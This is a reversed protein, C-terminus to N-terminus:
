GNFRFKWIERAVRQDPRRYVIFPSSFIKAPLLPEPEFGFKKIENVLKDSIVVPMGKTIFQPVIFVIKANPKLIKKFESFADIYLSLLENAQKKLEEDKESGRLPKGLYPETTILDISKPKLTKGLNKVDAVTIEIISDSTDPLKGKQWQLNNKTDLVAKESLDTGFINKTGQLLAETIITGSGCFPDLLTTKESIGGIQLMMLALKPPLMGSESDRGPRGFDRQGFSEFPQVALTRAFSFNSGNQNVIFEFGSDVLGNKEVTVSSLTTENKFIYRVSRGENKLEKKLQKGWEGVTKQSVNKGYLSIGFTIKGTSRLLITRIRDLLDNENFGTGVEEAIKISGGLKQMLNKDTERSVILFPPKYEYTENDKIELLCFLEAASLLPERGLLFWTKNRTQQLQPM